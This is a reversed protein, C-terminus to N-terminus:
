DSIGKLKKKCSFLVFLNAVLFILRLIYSVLLCMWEGKTSTWEPLKQQIDIELYNLIKKSVYDNKIDHLCAFDLISFLIIIVCFAITLSLVIKMRDM